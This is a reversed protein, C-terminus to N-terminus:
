HAQAQENEAGLVRELNWFGAWGEEEQCEGREEKEELNGEVLWGRSDRQTCPPVRHLSHNTRRKLEESQFPREEKRKEEEEKETRELTSGEM